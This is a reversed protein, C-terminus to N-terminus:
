KFLDIVEQPIGPLNAIEDSLLIDPQLGIGAIPTTNPPLWWRASTIHISSGDQLGFVLQITDKGYTPTGVLRARNSGQLAGSIIEAASATGHNVFVILPFKSYKGPQKASLTKEEEGRFKQILVVGPEMFLGATDVGADVLGGGNNRLDLIFYKVNRKLLDDMAKSVEGPTTEAIINIQVVGVDSVNPLTNWTVSPLPVEERFINLEESQQDGTHIVTLLVRSNIPGRIAAQVMDVSWESNVAVRDVQVLQDGEKVGVKIAPSEPFPYVFFQGDETKDIRVGIGGYKGELQNTQLEHQPPDYFATYPDNYEVLLGRVMGYELKTADPKENVGYKLLLDYAQDLTKFRNNGVGQNNQTAFGFTYSFTIIVVQLVAIILLRFAKPRQM